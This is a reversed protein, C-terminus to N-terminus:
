KLLVEPLLELRQVADAEGVPLELPQQVLDDRGIDEGGRGQEAFAVAEGPVVAGREIVSEDIDLVPAFVGELNDILEANVGVVAMMAVVYHKQDVADGDDLDLELGEADAGAPGHLLDDIVLFVGAVTIGLCQEAEHLEKDDRVLGLGVVEGVVVVAVEGEIRIFVEQGDVLVRGFVVRFDGVEVGEGLGEQGLTGKARGDAAVHYEDGGLLLHEHHAGVLNVGDLGDVLADALIAAVAIDPVGGARALGESGKLGGREQFEVGVYVLAEEHHVALVEVALGAFLEVAELFSADLFVGIGGRQDAAEDGFIRSVLDDDGSDLFEAEGKVFGAFVVLLALLVAPGSEFLAEFRQAVLAHDKDKVLAVAGLEPFSVLGDLVEERLSLEEAEGARRDESFVGGDPLDIAINGREAGRLVEELAFQVGIGDRVRDFVAVDQLEMHVVKLGLTLTRLIEALSRSLKGDDFPGEVRVIGGGAFATEIREEGGGRDVVGDLVVLKELLNLCLALGLIGVEHRQLDCGDEGRGGLAIGVDLLELFVQRLFEFVVLLFRVLLLFGELGDDGVVVVAVARIVEDALEVGVILVDLLADLVLLVGVVVEGFLARFLDVDGDDYIHKQGAEVGFIEVREVNIFIELVVTEDLCKGSGIADQVGGLGVAVDVVESVLSVFDIFGDGHERACFGFHRLLDPQDIFGRDDDFPELGGLLFQVVEEQRLAEFRAGFGDGVELAVVSAGSEDLLEFFDLAEGSLEVLVGIEGVLLALLDLLGQRFVVGAGETADVQLGGLAEFGFLVFGPAAVCVRLICNVLEIELEDKKGRCVDVVVINHVEDGAEAPLRRALLLHGPVLEYAENAGVRLEHVFEVFDGFVDPREFGALGECFLLDAVAVFAELVLSVGGFKGFDCAAM